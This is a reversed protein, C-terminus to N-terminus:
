GYCALSLLGGGKRIGALRVLLIPAIDCDPIGGIM